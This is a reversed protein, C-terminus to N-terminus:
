DEREYDNNGNLMEMCEAAVFGVMFGIIASNTMYAVIAFFVLEFLAIVVLRKDIM